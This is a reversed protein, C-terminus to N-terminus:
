PRAQVEGVAGPERREEVARRAPCLVDVALKVTSGAKMEWIEGTVGRGRCGRCRVAPDAVVVPAPFYMIRDM